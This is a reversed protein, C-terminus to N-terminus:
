RYLVLLETNDINNERLWHNLGKKSDNNFFDGFESPCSSSYGNITPINLELSAIMADIHTIHADEKSDIIAFALHQKTIKNKVINATRERRNVIFNKETRVVKNPLFSNDFFVFLFLIYSWQRKKKYLLSVMMILIMFLSVHIFRNMVRLSNMGPLKIISIYLSYGNETRTFWLFIFFTTISLAWTLKSIQKKKLMWYIWLIPISILCLLPIIGMFNYNLWWKSKPQAYNFLFGWTKSSEHPFLYTQITPLNEKIEGYTRLGVMDTVGLYPTILVLMAIVSLLVIITTKFINEKLFLFKFIFPEKKVLAYILLFAFSFYLLFFGTYIVCYFQFV